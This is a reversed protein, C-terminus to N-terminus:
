IVGDRMEFDKLTAGGGNLFISKRGQYEATRAEGELNWRPSDPAISLTQPTQSHGAAAFADPAGFINFALLLGAGSTTLVRARLLSFVKKRIM